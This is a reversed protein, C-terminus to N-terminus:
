SVLNPPDQGASSAEEPWDHDPEYVVPEVWEQGALAARSTEGPVLVTVTM